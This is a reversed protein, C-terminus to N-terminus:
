VGLLNNLYSKLETLTPTDNRKNFFSGIVNFVCRIDANNFYTPETQDIISALYDRNMLANYVIVNEYFDWNIRDTM